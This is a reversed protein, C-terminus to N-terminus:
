FPSAIVLARAVSGKPLFKQGKDLVVLAHAGLMSSLVGSGQNPMLEAYFRQNCLKLKARLFTTRDGKSRADSDLIVDIQPLTFPPTCGSAKLIAPRVFFLFSLFSSVTNGPLGFFPKDRLMAFVVPKGPKMSVRWFLIEAGMEQLVEKVYDYDGVSVGGTSVVMDAQLAFEIASRLDFRNDRAIPHIMQIAGSSRVLAALSYSNSNVIQGTAPREDIEVLEDGTPVIAVLPRSYVCLYSRASALVGICAADLRTGRAVLLQGQKVDEGKPRVNQGVKVPEFVKVIKGEAKTVEVVVVADAGEPLVAGTMIRVAQGEGLTVTPMKGAPLDELVSLIAPADQSASAVDSARVAYGDMASCTFPPVSEAAYVDEALVRGLASLLDVREISRPYIRELVLRQAEEVSILGEAM